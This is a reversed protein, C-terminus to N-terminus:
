LLNLERGRAVCQTRSQVGLKGFINNIHKKVTGRAIILIEAIQQNSRGEAVLRLVELERESLAEILDQDAPIAVGPVHLKEYESLLKAVYKPAIGHSRAQHLLEVMPTGEDLFMRIYGGPLALVFARELTQLAQPLANKKQLCLAHLILLEIVTETKGHGEAALLLRKILKQAADPKNQAMLVRAFTLYEAERLPHIDDDIRFGCTQVWHVVADLDGLALWLGVKFMEVIGAAGPALRHDLKLREVEAFCEQAGELDGRAQKVRAQLVHASILANINGWKQALNACQQLYQEASELDNWEYFVRGLGNFARAAVPLYQGAPTTAVQLAQRFAKEAQHLQGQDAQNGALMFTALVVVHFNGAAKGIRLAEVLFHSANELEGTLLYAGGLIQLAFSRIPLNSESLTELAQQGYEIARPGDWHYTAIQARIVAINGRMEGLDAPATTSLLFHEVNNILVEAKDVQNTQVLAWAHYLSLWPKKAVEIQVKEIWGLLATLEGRLIMPLANQEVLLAAYDQEGAALAHDLAETTLHICEYWEAARHHLEMLDNPYAQGLRSRLVDAFLHHYRYWRREDDLPIIFLNSRELNELMEQGDERDTLVNCLPATLQELIATKLLFERVAEPQRNLVEEALYDLIYRHSGSLASIFGQVDERGQMSLAALQLGAIWGETHGELAEVQSKSLELGMVQHLFISAEEFTFRLDSARLETLQNRVRLSSLPLIPDARTLIVLHMQLPLHDLLFTLAEQVPQSYILHYDELVLVFPINLATVLDNILATLIVQMSSPQASQLTVQATEGIGAGLTGLATTLYILFRSVDNDDRDLSLWATPIQSGAGSRWESMLTTKGYGAPASILTLPRKLGDVLREILRPRPVQNARVQPFYLKTALIPNSM